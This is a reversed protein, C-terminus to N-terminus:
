AATLVFALTSASGPQALQVTQRLPRCGPATAEVTRAGPEVGLLRYSGAADTLTREGSGVMMVEALLLPKQDPGQVTGGVQTPPLALVTLVPKLGGQADRTVTATASVTGYRPGAAPLSATLGYSGDPLDVFYFSGDARTLTRDPREALAAWGAGAALAALALRDTFAQPATTIAVQAGAVPQGTAADTVRGALAVLHRVEEVAAM